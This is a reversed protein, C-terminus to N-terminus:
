KKKNTKNRKNTKKRKTKKKNTKNRKKTGGWRPPTDPGIPILKKYYRRDKCLRVRNFREQAYNICGPNKDPHLKMLLMLTKRKNRNDHIDDCDQKTKPLVVSKAPCTNIDIIKNSLSDQEDYYIKYQDQEKEKEKSQEKKLREREKEAEKEQEKRLREQEKEQKKRLSEAEKEQKKKLREQEEFEKRLREQEEFQQQFRAEQEQRLYEEHQRREEAEEEEAQRRRQAEEQEQQEEYQRRTRKNQRIRESMNSAHEKQLKEFEAQRIGEQQLYDNQARSNILSNRRALEEFIYQNEHTNPLAGKKALEVGMNLNVNSYKNGRKARAFQENSYNDTSYYDPSKSKSKFRRKKNISELTNVDEMKRYNLIPDQITNLPPPIVPKRSNPFFYTFM